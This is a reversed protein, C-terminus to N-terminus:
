KIVGLRDLIVALEQRTVPETPRTGDMVGAKTAKDWADKAWAAPTNEGDVASEAAHVDIGLTILIGRAYARGIADQEAATDFKARDAANDIFGFEAIVAPCKTERIFGYYDRGKDNKRTKCGRSTQGILTVEAEINEALEKGRGGTLAHYAEFGKGGGANIHIDLALDPDFDNCELIEENLPDDEDATRSMKVLVGHKALEDWCAQAIVLTIDKEQMGDSVAGPDKGGHGVGLFVKHMPNEEKQENTWVAIALKCARDDTPDNVPKGDIMLRTSGGGDLNIANEFGFNLLEERFEALTLGKGTILFLRDDKEAVAARRTVSVRVDKTVYGDAEEGDRVLPPYGTIYDTWKRDWPQGFAFTKGDQTGFGFGNGEDRQLKGDIYITGISGRTDWLSANLMYKPKDAQEAYWQGMTMRGLPVIEVRRIDEAKIMTMRLPGIDFYEAM